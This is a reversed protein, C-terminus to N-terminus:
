THKREYQPLSLVQAIDLLEAHKKSTLAGTFEILQGCEIAIQMQAHRTKRDQAKGVQRDEKAQDEKEREQRLRGQEEFAAAATAGTLFNEPCGRLRTQRWTKKSDKRNVINKLRSIETSSFTCHSEASIRATREEQYKLHLLEYDDLIATM